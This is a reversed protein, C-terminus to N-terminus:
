KLRSFVYFLLASMLSVILRVSSFDIADYWSVHTQLPLKLLLLMALFCKEPKLYTYNIGDISTESFMNMKM